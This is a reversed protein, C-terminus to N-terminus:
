GGCDTTSFRGIGGLPQPCHPQPYFKIEAHTADMRRRLLRSETIYSNHWWAALMGMVVMAWLLDRTGFSLWRRRPKNEDM